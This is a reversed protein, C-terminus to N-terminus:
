VGNSNLQSISDLYDRHLNSKANNLSSQIAKFTPATYVGQSLVSRHRLCNQIVIPDIGAEKLLRGYYHRPGHPTTGFAKGIQIDSGTIAIARKVAKTFAREYARYSYPEGVYSEGTSYDVGSSVFLFPHDQLGRLRRIAMLKDRYRLYYLYMERFLFEPAEHVFYVPANLSTDLKLNKWGTRYSKTLGENRPVLGLEKLYQRRTKKEGRIYTDADAPHRLFVRCSSGEWPVVDNIWLHLPESIRTGGFFLLLSIMKATIDERDEPQLGDPDIVFGRQLFDTVLEEPFTPVDGKDWSKTTSSGLDIVNSLNSSQLRRATQVSDQLHSFFNVDKFKFATILYKLAVGESSRPGVYGSKLYDAKSYGEGSCWAVFSRLRSSVRKAGASKMPAWYLNLSDIATSHDITGLVLATAFQRFLTLHPSNGQILKHKKASVQFDYFLGVARAVSRKWMLSKFPYAMFYDILSDMRVVGVETSLYLVPMTLSSFHEVKQIVVIHHQPPNNTNALM